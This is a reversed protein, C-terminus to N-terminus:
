LLSSQMPLHRFLTASLRLHHLAKSCITTSSPEISLVGCITSCNALLCVCIFNMLNSCLLPVFAARLAAMAIAVPSNQMISSLSSLNTGFAKFIMSSTTFLLLKM